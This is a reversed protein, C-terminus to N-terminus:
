VPPLQQQQQPQQQQQDKPRHPSRLLTQEDASQHYPRAHHTGNWLASWHGKRAAMIATPVLLAPVIYLLAPQAAKFAYNCYFSVFLALAYFALATSFYPPLSRRAHERNIVDFHLLYVLLMEPLIIDGLGLIAHRNDGAPIVLKAPMALNPVPSFPLGLFNVIASAPNQPTSTAVQVMVNQGFVRESFFVFFIDYCFLGTFLIAAVRLSPIKCLSAFLVCLSVAIVDNVLWHGSFLWILLILIVPPAALYFPLTPYPHLRTYRTLFTAIATSLPYLVFILSFFSSITSLLTLITGISNLFFFLFLISVTALLPFFIAMSPPLTSAHHHVIADSINPSSPSSSSPKLLTENARYSSYGATGVAILLLSLTTVDTLLAWVASSM